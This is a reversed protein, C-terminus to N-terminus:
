SRSRRNPIRFTIPDPDPVQPGRPTVILVAAGLVALLAAGIVSLWFDAGGMADPKHSVHYIFHPLGFVLWGVGAMRAPNTGGLVLAYITIATLALFFAGVDGSLHHNYPGDPSVWQMGFGPFSTYWSHPAFTAWLGVIAGQAALVALMIRVALWRNRQQDFRMRVRFAGGKGEFSIRM